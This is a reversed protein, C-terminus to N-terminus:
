SVLSGATQRYTGDSQVVATNMYLGSLLCKGVKEMESGCSVSPDMKERQALKHLQERVRLAAQLTKVNVYNEKAWRVPSEAKDEKIAIFARLVNM